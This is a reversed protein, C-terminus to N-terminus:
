APAVPPPPPPPLALQSPGAALMTCGQPGVALLHLVADCRVLVLRTKPDLWCTEVAELRTGARAAKLAAPRFRRLLWTALALGAVLLALILIARIPDPESM